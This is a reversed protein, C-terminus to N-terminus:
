GDHSSSVTATESTAHMANNSSRKKRINFHMVVAAAFLLVYWIAINAGFRDIHWSSMISIGPATGIFWIPFGHHTIIGVTAEESYDKGVIIFGSLYAFVLAVVPVLGLYVLVTGITKLITKM